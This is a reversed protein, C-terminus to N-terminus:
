RTDDEDPFLEEMSRFVGEPLSDEQWLISDVHDRTLEEGYGRPETVVAVRVMAPMQAKEAQLRQVEARMGSLFEQAMYVAFGALGIGAVLVLMFLARM